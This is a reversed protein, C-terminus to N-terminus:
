QPSRMRSQVPNRRLRAPPSSILTGTVSQYWMVVPCSLHSPILVNAAGLGSTETLHGACLFSSSDHWSQRAAPSTLKYKWLLPRQM